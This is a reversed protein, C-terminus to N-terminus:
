ESEDSLTAGNAPHIMYGQLTLSGRNISLRGVASIRRYEVLAFARADSFSTGQLVLASAMGALVSVDFRPGALPSFLSSPM